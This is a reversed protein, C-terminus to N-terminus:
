SLKVIFTVLMVFILSHIRRSSAPVDRGGLLTIYYNITIVLSSNFYLRRVYICIGVTRGDTGMIHHFATRLALVLALRVENIM